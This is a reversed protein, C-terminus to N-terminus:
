KKRGVFRIVSSKGNHFKGENLLVEEEALHLMEFGEFDKQLEETSFLMDIDMPGGVAPDAKSLPLHNKSFAEFIVIGGPKLYGIIKKHLDSKITAPFHAYILGIADFSTPEFSMDNLDGVIYELAVEHQKALAEAKQKGVISLDASTVKWGQTAAYVGNRGEGDAPMLLKGSDFQQLQDKFFVNPEIGYAFAKDAYRQNWNPLSM